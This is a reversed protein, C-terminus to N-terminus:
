RLPAIATTSRSVPTFGSRGFRFFRSFARGGSGRQGRRESSRMSRRTATYAFEMASRQDGLGRFSLFPTVKHKRQIADNYGAMEAFVGLRRRGSLRGDGLEGEGDDVPPLIGRALSLLAHVPNRDGHEVAVALVDSL